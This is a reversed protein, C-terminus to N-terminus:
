ILHLTSLVTLGLTITIPSILTSLAISEAALAGHPTLENAMVFAVTATPASIMLFFIGLDEGRFGWAFAATTLVIPILVMKFATAWIVERHDPRFKQWQLSAGICLLALPLAMRALYDLSTHLVEPLPLALQQWAIGAAIGILLPNRVLNGFIHRKSPSLIMVALVNYAIIMVAVFFGARALVENGYANLCLALGILGMNSRFASQTFVGRKDRSVLLPAIMWVVLITVVTSVLGFLALPLDSSRSLPITATALFLLCPLCVNFVLWNGVSVFNPSIWEKKRFWIGLLLIAFIPAIVGASQALHTLFGAEM